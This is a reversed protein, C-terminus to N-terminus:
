LKLILTIVTNRPLNFGLTHKLLSKLETPIYSDDWDGLTNPLIVHLVPTDESEVQCTCEEYSWRRQKDNLLALKIDFNELIGSVAKVEGPETPLDIKLDLMKKYLLNLVWHNTQSHPYFSILEPLGVREAGVTYAFSPAVPVKPTDAGSYNRLSQDESVTYDDDNFIAYIQIGTERITLERKAINRVWLEIEPEEAMYQLTDRHFEKPFDLQGADLAALDKAINTNTSTM